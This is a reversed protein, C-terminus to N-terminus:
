SCYNKKVNNNFERVPLRHDIFILSNKINGIISQILKLGGGTHIGPAYLIISTSKNKNMNKDM